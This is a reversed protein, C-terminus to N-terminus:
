SNENNIGGSGNECQTNKDREILMANAQDECVWPCTRSMAQYFLPSSGLRGDHCASVGGVISWKYTRDPVVENLLETVQRELDLEHKGTVVIYKRHEAM